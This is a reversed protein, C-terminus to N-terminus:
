RRHVGESQPTVFRSAPDGHHLPYPLSPLRPHRPRILCQSSGFQSSKTTGDFFSLGRTVDRQSVFTEKVRKSGSCSFISRGREFMKTFSSRPDVLLPDPGGSRERTVRSKDKCSDLLLSGRSRYGTSLPNKNTKSLHVVRQESLPARGDRGDM